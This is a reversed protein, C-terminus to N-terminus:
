SEPYYFLNDVLINGSYAPKKAFYAELILDYVVSEQPTIQFFYRKWATHEIVPSVWLIEEENSDKNRGLIRFVIPETYTEFASAFTNSRALDVSYQYTQEKKLPSTLTQFCAEWTNGNSLEQGRTILSIYSNGDAPKTNVLWAGPQTDPTSGHDYHQWPTPLRSDGHSGEFSPNKVDQAIVMSSLLGIVLSFM